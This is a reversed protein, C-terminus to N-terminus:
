LWRHQLAYGGDDDWGSTDGNRGRFKFGQEVMISAHVPSEARMYTGVKPMDKGGLPWLGFGAPFLTRSLDYVVAFGMDMGCGQVKVGERQRDWKMGLAVAINYGLYRPEGEIFVIFQIVRSMGSSSVHRIVCHITDGAKVWERIRELAEAREAKQAKTM